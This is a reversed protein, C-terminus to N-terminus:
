MYINLVRKSSGTDTECSTLAHLWKVIIKIAEIFGWCEFLSHFLFILMEEELTNTSFHSNELSM